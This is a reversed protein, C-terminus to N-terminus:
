NEETLFLELLTETWGEVMGIVDESRNLRSGIAWCHLLCCLVFICLVYCQM